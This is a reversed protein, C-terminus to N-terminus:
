CKTWGHSNTAIFGEIANEFTMSAKQKETQQTINREDIPDIGSAVLGKVQNALERAQALGVTHTPGL